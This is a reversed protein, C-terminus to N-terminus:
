EESKKVTFLVRETNRKIEGSTKADIASIFTLGSKKLMSKIEQITYAQESFSESYRTYSGGNNEFFDLDIRVSNSDPNFYNQWSCFVSESEYIFTNNALINKHKYITNVDFLFYGNPNLFLSIRDFTRQVENKNKLHNISDLMCFVTDVTGYLDLNQMKQCLFLVDTNLEYSKDKAINLMEISSDIGFADIGRSLLEFTLNGTGCALDLTLGPNHNQVELLTLLRDCMKKYDVNRILDDYYFAFNCYDNM